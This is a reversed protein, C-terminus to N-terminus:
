EIQNGAYVTFGDINPFLNLLVNSTALLAFFLTQHISIFRLWGLIQLSLLDMLLFWYIQVNSIGQIFSSFLLRHTILCFVFIQANQHTCAWTHINFRLLQCVSRFSLDPCRVFKWAVFYFVIYGPFCNFM